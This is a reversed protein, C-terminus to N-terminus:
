VNKSEKFLYSVAVGVSAGLVQALVFLAISAPAIGSFTDSWGRAFTVAPNAFSTSSTFFYAGGIWAAVAIPALAGKGQFGLLQILLLLGATAVVESLFLNGGSRIHHSAFLAPNKFMLNALMTGCLGGVFQAAIFGAADRGAIRKQILESLTVVPNFHSGSIDAFLYIILALIFVTAITNILLQVGVDHSLNVAMTGSGVVTAVLLLTGLFEAGYKRLKNRM